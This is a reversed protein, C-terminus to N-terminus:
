DPLMFEIELYEDTETRTIADPTVGRRRALSLLADRYAHALLRHFAQRARIGVQTLEATARRSLERRREQAQQEWEQQAAQRAQQQLAAEHEQEAATAAQALRSQATRDLEAESAQRAEELARDRTRNGWGDEYYHGEAQVELTDAVTGRLRERVTGQARLEESLTAVIELSHDDPFYVVYGGEVEHRFSGDEQETWGPFGQALANQLALLASGGLTADLAQRIRAEGTLAAVVEAVREVEREWAENAQRTATVQVRRPNCM